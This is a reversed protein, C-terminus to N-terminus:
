PAMVRHILAQLAQLQTEHGSTSILPVDPYRGTASAEWPKGPLGRLGSRSSAKVTHYGAARLAARCERNTM